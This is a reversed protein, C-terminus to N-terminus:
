GASPVLRVQTAKVSCWLQEGRGLGLDAWASTTVRATLLPGNTAGGVSAPTQGTMRIHGMRIHVTVLGASAEAAEVVGPLLSRPSGAMAERYLSVSEPAFILSVRAGAVLAPLMEHASELPGAAALRGATLEVGPLGDAGWSLPGTVINLGALRASFDTKPAALLAAPDGQEVVRGGDIVVLRSALRVAEVVDHTILVTTVGDHGLRHALVRTLEARSAVDLASTPEDLIMLQPQFVLARALGVRAAQGGSLENGRREALSDAGVARLQAHAAQEAAHRAMGRARLPYAVNALVSMHGFIMPDQGVLAVQRHRPSVYGGAGDLARDGITVSGSDLRLVGALLGALTSKGAGNRGMVAVVQGAPLDLKMNWGRADIRGDVHVPAPQPRNAATSAGSPHMGTELAETELAALQEATMPEDVPERRARRPIETLGVILAAVVILVMGLALATGSDSERALYIELPMTRTVGQLSGAFTLTAGFEGLCRALALATGRALGPTVMPLTITRLVRTPGAGLGAATEELGKPRSRLAAELTIVLFPLSVFVQAMVVAVTSFAIQIGAAELWGGLLGKRGFTVLLALGAVVPPLSLPLAVLVRAVRVGPWRRSLLVALPVGLAVDIVIAALATRLSLGLAARAAESGLVTGLSGWPVRAGMFVLPVVLYALGVCALAVLWWPAPSVRPQTRSSM